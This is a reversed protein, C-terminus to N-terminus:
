ASGGSVRPYVRPGEVVEGQLRDPSCDDLHHISAYEGMRITAPAGTPDVPIFLKPRQGTTALERVYRERATDLKRWDAAFGALAKAGSADSPHIADFGTVLRELITNEARILRVRDGVTPAAGVQPLERLDVLAARCTSTAAQLSTADLPEPKPRHAGYWFAWGWAGVFLALGLAFVRRPWRKKVPESPEVEDVRQM